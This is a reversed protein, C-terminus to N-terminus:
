PLEKPREYPHNSLEVPKSWSSGMESPTQAIQWSAPSDDLLSFQKADTVALSRQRKYKLV